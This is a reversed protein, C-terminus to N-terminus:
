AFRQFSSVKTSMESLDKKKEREREGTCPFYCQVTSTGRHRGETGSQLEFAKSFYKGCKASQPTHSKPRTGREHAWAPNLSPFSSCAPILTPSLHQLALQLCPWTVVAPCLCLGQPQGLERPHCASFVCCQPSSRRRSWSKEQQGLYEGEQGLHEQEQCNNRRKSWNKGRRSRTNKRRFEM